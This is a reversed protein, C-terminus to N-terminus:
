FKYSLQVFPTDRRSSYTKLSAKMDLRGFVSVDDAVQTNHRRAAFLAEFSSVLHNVIMVAVMKRAQDYKVNAEHRMDEYAMRRVSVPALAANTIRPPPNAQNYDDLYNGQYNADDWGWAFQNYKGTMEYYQQTRTVPIHHSIETDPIQTDDTIGFYNWSLYTEYDARHWHARNFAEFEDTLDDGEGNFKTDFGWAAAEVGLFILAKWKSGMYFQGAGPVAASFLFAKLPSKRGVPETEGASGTEDIANFQISPSGGFGDTGHTTGFRVQHADDELWSSPAGGALVVGPVLSVTLLCILTLWM